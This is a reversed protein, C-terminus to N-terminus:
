IAKTLLNSVINHYSKPVVIRNGKLIINRETNVTLKNKMKEYFRLESIKPFDNFIEYKDPDKLKYWHNESIIQVLIKLVPDRMTETKIDKLSLVNPVASTTVLNVYNETDDTKVESIHPHRSTYDSINETGKVFKLEFDYGSIRLTMIEIRLPVTSQPNSFIKVLAKQDTDITFNRGLLKSVALCEREIQSYRQETETLSRSAYSVVKSEGNLSRQLLIASIGVPSADCYLFTPHKENFYAICSEDLKQFCKECDDTWVFDYNEKTLCGGCM